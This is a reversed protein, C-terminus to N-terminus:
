DRICRVSNGHYRNLGFRSVRTDDGRLYRGYVGNSGDPTSSWWYCYIGSDNPQGTNTCDGSPQAAFSCINSGNGNHNWGSTAKLKSGEDTGRWGTNNADSQSMGLYIELAKWEDDSPLHWGTPCAKQAAEWSYFQGYSSSFGDWVFVDFNQCVGDAVGGTTDIRTVNARLNEAMWIQEGTKVWKYVNADRNDIFTGSSPVEVIPAYYVISDIDALTHIVVSDTGDSATFHIYMSDPTSALTLVSTILALAITIITKKM